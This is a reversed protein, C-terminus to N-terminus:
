LRGADSGYYNEIGVGYSHNQLSINYQSYSNGDPLLTVFDSSALTAAPAVGKGTFFSNGGGAVLTAMTTAHSTNTSSGLGTEKYRNKFDIDTTDFMNEKISATLGNGAINPYQAFFLNINNTSNDYDNIVTEEKAATSRLDITNVIESPLLVEKVFAINTKISFLHYLPQSNVITAKSSYRTILGRFTTTDTTGVLFIYEKDALRSQQQLLAPSLKWNSNAAIVKEALESTYLNHREKGNVIFWEGSIQRKISKNFRKKFAHISERRVRVLFFSISSSDFVEKDQYGNDGFAMEIAENTSDTKIKQSFATAACFLLCLFILRKM